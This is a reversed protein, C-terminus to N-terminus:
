GRAANEQHRHPIRHGPAAIGRKQHDFTQDSSSVASGPANSDLEMFLEPEQDPHLLNEAHKNM